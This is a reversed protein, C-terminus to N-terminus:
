LSAGFVTRGMSSMRRRLDVELLHLAPQRGGAGLRGGQLDQRRRHAAQGEPAHRQHPKGMKAAGPDCTYQLGGVRVM